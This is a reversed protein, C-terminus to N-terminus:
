KFNRRVRWLGSSSYSDSWFSQCKAFSANRLRSPEHTQVTAVAVRAQAGFPHFVGVVVQAPSARTPNVRCHTCAGVRAAAKGRCRRAGRRLATTASRPYAITATQGATARTAPPPRREKPHHSPPISNHARGPTRYPSVATPTEAIHVDAEHFARRASPPPQHSRSPARRIGFYASSARHYAVPCRASREVAARGVEVFALGRSLESAARRRQHSLQYVLTALPIGRTAAFQARSQGSTAWEMLIVSWEVKSRRSM